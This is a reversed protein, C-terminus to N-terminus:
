EFSLTFVDVVDELDAAAFSPRIDVRIDSVVAIRLGADHLTRLTPAADEAFFNVAPDCEVEYLATVLQPDLGLDALVRLYTRRHLAADADMGPVDFADGARELRAAIGAAADDDHPRGIRRLAEAIWGEFTPSVVLTGRWDFLVGRFTM